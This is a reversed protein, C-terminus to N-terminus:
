EMEPTQTPPLNGVYFCVGLQKKSPVRVEFNADAPNMPRLLQKARNSRGRNDSHKTFADYVMM